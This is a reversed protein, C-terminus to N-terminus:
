LIERDMLFNQWYLDKGPFIKFESTQKMMPVDSSAGDPKYFPSQVTNKPDFQSKWKGKFYIANILLMVTNDNLKDIMEKILGNTKSEIWFNIQKPAMPILLILHSQNPMM